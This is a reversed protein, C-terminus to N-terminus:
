EMADIVMKNQQIFPLGLIANITVDCGMAVLFSTPKGERMLYPIHFRFAVSLDTTVSNGNQQVIGSLMIPSYGSPSDISAVTHPYAMALAVFFHLNDTIEPCNVCCFVSGLQLTIHPFAAQILVPLVRRAPPATTLVPACIM